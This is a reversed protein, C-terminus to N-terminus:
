HALPSRDLVPSDALTGIRYENGRTGNGPNRSQEAGERAGRV